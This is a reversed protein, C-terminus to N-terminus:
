GGHRQLYALAGLMLAVADPDADFFRGVTGALRRCRACLLARVAKTTRSRDPRLETGELGCLACRNDQTGALAHDVSERTNM